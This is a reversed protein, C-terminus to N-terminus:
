TTRGLCKYYDYMEETPFDKEHYHIPHYQNINNIRIMGHDFETVFMNQFKAMEPYGNISPKMHVFNIFDMSPITCLERGILSATLAYVVDTTPFPDRCNLLTNQVIHWNNFIEKAKTFFDVATKSFRFYMLGNYTDPLNNDDFLKRYRRSTAPQQLYNKCGTSLVLDRFRFANWWHDISRTFLLDSELKITEKFPSYHLAYTELGYPGSISAPVEIIYDFVESHYEEVQKKTSPDVIVAYSKIKQTAKVNLAQLYALKLYDIDATNAAITLFGQQEQHNM